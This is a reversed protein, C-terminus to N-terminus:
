GLSTWIRFALEESLTDTKELSELELNSAIENILKECYGDAFEYSDIEILDGGSPVNANVQISENSNRIDEQDTSSCGTLLGGLLATLLSLPLLRWWCRVHRNGM